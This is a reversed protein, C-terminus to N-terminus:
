KLLGEAIPGLSLAPFYTLGTVILLVGALLGGFLPTTTPFTGASEPVHQKRVVAGALALALIMSGFRGFFMALGLTTNFFTTNASLGAFASGNNNAGSTFAYLVESLGHPGANLISARSTPLVMAIGTFVLVLAPTLLIYLAVLKMERPEIKKGLYEPTRGVMLGAIFVALVAIVLMGYLGSGTGGPTVESLMINVLPVAGGLPTFSDHSAIVAGTSTDTTSAAFLTSAPVGFRVEKGTMNGGTVSAATTGAPPATEFHWAVLASGLWLSAMVIALVYGQKRNGIMKGFTGTLAFPIVLLLFIELLNTFANPNEFPHASNANFFGGGNTGFEKIAEQSAVPGGPIMQHSGGLTTVQQFGHLNQIMGQSVFLLAVVVSIPLLIRVCTRVLDTWFNGITDAKQRAFARILAVAVAMGVAASVFNQVALGSMQVLNGMTSEGSYAQWNTNTTFSIATNFALAPQVGHLGLNMPLVGQARQMLYLFLICVGSFAVLAIAYGTWRQEADPDVGVLRYLFREIRLHDPSTYTHAMFDGLPRYALALLLVLVGIQLWPAM